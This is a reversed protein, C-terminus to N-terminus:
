AKHPEDSTENTNPDRVISDTADNKASDSSIQDLSLHSRNLVVHM